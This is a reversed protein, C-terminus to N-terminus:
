CIKALQTDVTRERPSEQEWNEKGKLNKGM